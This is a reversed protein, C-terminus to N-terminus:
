VTELKEVSLGILVDLSFGNFGEGFVWPDFLDCLITGNSNRDGNKL